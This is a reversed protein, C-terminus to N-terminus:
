AKLSILGTNVLAICHDIRGKDYSLMTGSSYFGLTVGVKRTLEYLGKRTLSFGPLM